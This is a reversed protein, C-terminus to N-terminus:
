NIVVSAVEQINIQLDALESESREALFFNKLSEKQEGVFEQSSDQVGDLRFILIDGNAFSVSSFFKGKLSKLFKPYM